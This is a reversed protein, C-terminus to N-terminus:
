SHHHLSVYEMLSWRREYTAKCDLTQEIRVREAAREQLLWDPTDYAQHCARCMPEYNRVDEPDTDHKYSWHVAVAGCRCEHERAQGRQARLQKHQRQYTASNTERTGKKGQPEPM